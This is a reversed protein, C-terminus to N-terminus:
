HGTDDAIVAVVLALVIPILHAKMASFKKRYFAFPQSKCSSVEGVIFTAIYV